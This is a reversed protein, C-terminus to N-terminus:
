YIEVNLFFPPVAFWFTMLSTTAKLIEGKRPGEVAVGLVNWKNGENDKFLYNPGSYDYDFELSSQQENLFYSNIMKENGVVLIDQSLFKSKIATGNGFDSFQFVKVSEEHVIAHVREKNDIADNFRSVPFLFFEHDEKYVGYPYESYNRNFGQENSLIKTEPFMEKWLKWTTEIVNVVSPKYEILEGNVCLLRLQSWHSDTERDYLILNSNYILGSVGFESFKNNVSSEWGFATGTLPCYSITVKEGFVDDNIVEHWDLIKHPYAKAKNGNVIGVILDDDDMYSSVIVNNSEVFIPKDISPIGDKGPGGDYVEDNPVVWVGKVGTNSNSNDVNSSNDDKGGNGGLTIERDPSCSLFIFLMSILFYNSKM